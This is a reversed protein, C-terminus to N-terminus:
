RQSAKHQIYKNYLETLDQRTMPGWNVLFRSPYDTKRIKLHMELAYLHELLTSADELNDPENQDAFNVQAELHIKLVGLKSYNVQEAVLLLQGGLNSLAIQVDKSKKSADGDIYSSHTFNTLNAKLSKSLSQTETRSPNTKEFTWNEISPNGHHVNAAHIQILSDFVAIMASLCEEVTNFKPTFTLASPKLEARVVHIDQESSVEYHLLTEVPAGSHSLKKHIELKELLSNIAAHDQKSIRWEVIRTTLAQHSSANLSSTNLFSRALDCATSSIPTETVSGTEDNRQTSPLRNFVTLDNFTVNKM